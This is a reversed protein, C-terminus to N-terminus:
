TGYGGPQHKKTEKSHCTHCIGRMRTPDYPDLGMAVLERRSLPFHDAVTAVRMCEHTGAIEPHCGETACQCFRDRRLVNKRARRHRADYGRQTSSGRADEAAQAHKACRGRFARDEPCGPWTCRRVPAWPM